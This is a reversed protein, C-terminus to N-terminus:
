FRFGKASTFRYKEINVEIQDTVLINAVKGVYIVM